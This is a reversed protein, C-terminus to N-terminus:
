KTDTKRLFLEVLSSVFFREKNISNDLEIKLDIVQQQQMHQQQM